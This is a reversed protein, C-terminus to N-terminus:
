GAQRSFRIREGALELVDGDHLIQGDAPIPAGNVTPYQAGELLQLVYMGADRTIAAVQLGPKGLRTSTKSLQVRTGAHPGTLLRITPVCEAGPQDVADAEDGAYPLDPAVSGARYVLRYAGIEIVDGDRLIHKRVPGGNVSTGNTSGLDELFSDNLITTVRAHEASVALDDLLIDSGAKRGIIMRERALMVERIVNEHRAVILKSM